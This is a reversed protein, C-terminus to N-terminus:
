SVTKCSVILNWLALKAGDAALGSFPTNRARTYSVGGRVRGSHEVILRCFHFRSLGYCERSRSLTTHLCLTTSNNAVVISCTYSTLTMTVHVVFMTVHVVFMAVHVVFM